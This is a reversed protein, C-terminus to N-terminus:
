FVTLAPSDNGCMDDKVRYIENGPQGGQYGPRPDIEGAIMTHKCGVALMTHQDCRRLPTFSVFGPYGILWVLLSRNRTMHGHGRILDPACRSLRTNLISTSVHRAQPPAALTIAQM